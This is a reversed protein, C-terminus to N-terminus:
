TNRLSTKLNGSFLMFLLFFLTYIFGASALLLFPNGPMQKIIRQYLYLSFLGSICSAASPFLLSDMAKFTFPVIKAIALLDLLLLIGYGFFLGLLYGYIGIVPALTLIFLIRLAESILHHYLTKKTMGFGNLISSTANSTYMLPCLISFLRIYEGAQPSQFVVTGLVHGYLLFAFTAFIGIMLCYHLCISITSKIQYIKQQKYSASIAPLIMVSMSNTITAPFFLFPLSMGTLTGFIILATDKNGFYLTLMAPILINEVSGILNLSFHNITLPISFHFFEGLLERSSLVRSSFSSIRVKHFLRYLRSKLQSYAYAAVTYLMSAVEGFLMGYVAIRADATIHYFSLALFYISGVRVCQEVLQSAAPVSSRNLGIYYGHFCSKIAVCPLSFAAIKLPLSASAERIIYISIEDSLSILGLMLILSLSVNIACTLRLLKKIHHTQGASSFRSTMNSIGTEFGHCCLTFCLLYVPFILQYVGLERAGILNSLLIRNYFGLIRSLVGSVTLILTGAFITKKFSSMM